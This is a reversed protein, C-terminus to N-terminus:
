RFSVSNIGCKRWPKISVETGETPIKVNTSKLFTTACNRWSTADIKSQLKKVKQEGRKILAFKIGGLLGPMSFTLNM